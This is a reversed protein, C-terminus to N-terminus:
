SKPPVDPTLAAGDANRPNSVPTVHTRTWMAFLFSSFVLVQAVQEQSWHWWGFTLGLGVGARLLNEAFVPEKKIWESFAMQTAKVPRAVTTLGVVPAPETRTALAM